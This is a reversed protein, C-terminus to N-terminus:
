PSPTGAPRRPLPGAGRRRSRDVRHLARHRGRLAHPLLGRGDAREDPWSTEAPADERRRRVKGYRRRLLAFNVLALYIEEATLKSAARRRNRFHIPVEGLRFGNLWAQYAM